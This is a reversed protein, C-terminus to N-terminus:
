KGWDSPCPTPSCDGGDVTTMNCDLCGSWTLSLGPIFADSDVIFDGPGRVHVWSLDEGAGRISIHYGSEFVFDPLKPIDYEGPANFIKVPHRITHPIVDFARSITQCPHEKSCWGWDSGTQANVYLNVPGHTVGWWNVAKMILVAICVGGLMALIQVIAKLFVPGLGFRNGM